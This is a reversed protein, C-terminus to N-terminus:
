IGFVCVIAKSRSIWFLYFVIQIKGSGTSLPNKVHVGNFKVNKSLAVIDQRHFRKKEEHHNTKCTTIAPTITWVSSFGVSWDFWLRNTSIEDTLVVASMLFDEKKPTEIFLLHPMFVIMEVLMVVPTFFAFPRRQNMHAGFLSASPVVHSEIWTIDSRTERFIFLFLFFKWRFCLFTSSSSVIVVSCIILHHHHRVILRYSSSMLPLKCTLSFSTHSSPNCSPSMSQWPCRTSPEGISELMQPVLLRCNICWQDWGDPSRIPKFRQISCSSSRLHQKPSVTIKRSYEIVFHFFPFPIDAHHLPTDSRHSESPRRYPPDPM